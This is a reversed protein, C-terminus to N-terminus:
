FAAYTARTKIWKAMSHRKILFNLRNVYLTIKLLYSSELAMKNMM